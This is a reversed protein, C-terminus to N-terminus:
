PLRFIWEPHVSLIWMLALWIMVVVFTLGGIGVQGSMFWHLM